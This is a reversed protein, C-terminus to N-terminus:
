FQLLKGARGLADEISDDYDRSIIEVVEEAAFVRNRETQTRERIIKADKLQEIANYVAPKSMDFWQLVQQATFIPHEILKSLIKEAASGKRPKLKNSWIKQLTVLANKNEEIEKASHIVSDAMFSIIPLYNLKKQAQELAKVYSEKHAEIYGSLYLPSYGEAMMQLALIVRGVRGNGDRFPHIAEFYSHAMALRVLFPLGSGLESQIILEEDTIWEIFKDMSPKVLHPPTPNFVSNEIKKGGIFVYDFKNKNKRYEGAAGKYKPDKIMIDHHIRKIVKHTFKFKTHLIEETLDSLMQAYKLISDRDSKENEQVEERVPNLLLDMTSWTGEMRSSSLAEKKVFLYSLLKDLESMENLPSLRAIIKNATRLHDLDLSFEVRKPPPPSIVFWTNQFEPIQGRDVGFESGTDYIKQLKSALEDKKM